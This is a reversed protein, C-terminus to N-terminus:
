IVTCACTSFPLLFRFLNIRTSYLVMPSVCAAAIVTCPVVISVVFALYNTMITPDSCHVITGCHLNNCTIARQFSYMYVESGKLVSSCSTEKMYM